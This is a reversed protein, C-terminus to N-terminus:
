YTTPEASLSCHRRHKFRLLDWAREKEDQDVICEIVVVTDGNEDTYSNFECSNSADRLIEHLDKDLSPVNETTSLIEIRVPPGRAALENEM